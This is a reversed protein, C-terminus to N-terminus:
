PNTTDQNARGQSLIEQLDLAEEPLVMTTPITVGSIFEGTLAIISNEIPNTGLGNLGCGTGVGYLIQLQHKNNPINIIFPVLSADLNLNDLLCSEQLLFAAAKECTELQEQHSKDFHIAITRNPTSLSGDWYLHNPAAIAAAAAEAVATAEAAARTAAQEATDTNTASTM